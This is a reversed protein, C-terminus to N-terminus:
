RSVVRTAAYTSTYATSPTTHTRTNYPVRTINKGDGFDSICFANSTTARMKICLALRACQMHSQNATPPNHTTRTSQPTNPQHDRLACKRLSPTHILYSVLLFFICYVGKSPNRLINTSGQNLAHLVTDLHLLTYTSLNKDQLLLHIYSPIPPHPINRNYM